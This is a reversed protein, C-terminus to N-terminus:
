VFMGFIVILNNVAFASTAKTSKRSWSSEVAKVVLDADRDLERICDRRYRDFALSSALKISQSEIFEGSPLLRRRHSPEVAISAAENAPREGRGEWASAVRTDDFDTQSEVTDVQDLFPRIM